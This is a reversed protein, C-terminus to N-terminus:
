SFYNSNWNTPRFSAGSEEEWIVTKTKPRGAGGEGVDVPTNLKVYAKRSLSAASIKTIHAIVFLATFYKLEM